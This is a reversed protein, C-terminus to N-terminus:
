RCAPGYNGGAKSVHFTKGGLIYSWKDEGPLLSWNKEQGDYTYLTLLLRGEYREVDWWGIARDDTTSTMSGVDSRDGQNDLREAQIVMDSGYSWSGEGNPCLQFRELTTQSSNGFSSNSIITNIKVLALGTLEQRLRTEDADRNRSNIVTRKADMAKRDKEALARQMKEEDSSSLHEVGDMLDLLEKKARAYQAEDVNPFYVMGCFTGKAHGNEWLNVRYEKTDGTRRDGYFTAFAVRGNGWEETQGNTMLTMDGLPIGEKFRQFLAEPETEWNLSFGSVGDTARYMVDTKRVELTHGALLPVFVGLQPIYQKGQRVLLEQQVPDDGSVAEQGGIAGLAALSSFSFIWCLLFFFRSLAPYPHPPIMTRMQLDTGLAGVPIAMDLNIVAWTM